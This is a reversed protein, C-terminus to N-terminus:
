YNRNNPASFNLLINGLVDLVQCEQPQLLIDIEYLERWDEDLSMIWSICNQHNFGTLMYSNFQDERNGVIERVREQECKWESVKTPRELVAGWELWFIVFEIDFVLSWNWRCWLM